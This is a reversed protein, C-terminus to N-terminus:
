RSALQDLLQRLEERLVPALSSDFPKRLAVVCDVGSNKVSHHRFEDRVLRKVRNRDVSRPVLRRTLAIGLRSAGARGEIVNLIISNGRLKRPSRFAPGFSGRACFRHRRSFGEPRPSRAM